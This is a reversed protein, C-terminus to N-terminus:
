RNALAMRIDWGMRFEYTPQPDDATEFQFFVIGQLTILQAPNFGSIFGNLANTGAELALIEYVLEAFRKVKKDTAIVDRKPRMVGIIVLPYSIEKLDQQGRGTPETTVGNEIILAPTDTQKVNEPLPVEGTDFDKGGRTGGQEIRWDRLALGQPTSTDQLADWFGRDIKAWRSDDGITM